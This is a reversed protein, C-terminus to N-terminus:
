LRDNSDIDVLVFDSYPTTRTSVWTSRDVACCGRISNALLPDDVLLLWHNKQDYLYNEVIHALKDEMACYDAYSMVEAHASGSFFFYHSRPRHFAITRDRAHFVSALPVNTTAGGDDHDTMTFHVAKRGDTLLPPLVGSPPPQVVVVHQRVHPDNACAWLSWLFCGVSRM